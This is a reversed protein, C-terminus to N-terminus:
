AIVLLPSSPLLPSLLSQSSPLALLRPPCSVPLLVVVVCLSSTSLPLLLSSSSSSQPSGSLSVHGFWRRTWSLRESRQCHSWQGSSWVAKYDRISRRAITAEANPFSHLLLLSSSADPGRYREQFLPFQLCVCYRAEQRPKKVRAVRLPADGCRRPRGQLLTGLSFRARM